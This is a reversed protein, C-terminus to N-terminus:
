EQKNRCHVGNEDRQIKSIGPYGVDYARHEEANGKNAAAPENNGAIQFTQM